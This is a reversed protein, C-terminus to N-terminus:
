SYKVKIKDMAETNKQVQISPESQGELGALIDLVRYSVLLTSLASKNRSSLTKRDGPKIHLSPNLSGLHSYDREFGLFQRLSLADGQSASSINKEFNLVSNCFKKQMTDIKLCPSISKINFTGPYKIEYIREGLQRRRTVGNALSIYSYPGDKPPTAKIQRNAIGHPKEKGSPSPQSPEYISTSLTM